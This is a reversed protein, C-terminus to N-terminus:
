PILLLKGVTKRGELDRHADAADAMAYTKDVMLKLKGSGIWKLVDGARWLLEERTLVHHALSPRTLFLSGKHNLINPDLPSVVGSSQGFLAMM